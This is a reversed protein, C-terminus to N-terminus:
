SSVEDGQHADLDDAAEVVTPKLIQKGRYMGCHPCVHHYPKMQGCNSCESMTTMQVKDHMRRFGRKMPTTKRKPVAM